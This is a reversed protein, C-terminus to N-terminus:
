LNIQMGIHKKTWPSLEHIVHSNEAKTFAYLRLM